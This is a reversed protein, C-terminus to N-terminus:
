QKKINWQDCGMGGQNTWEKEAGSRAADFLKGIFGLKSFAAMVWADGTVKRIKQTM